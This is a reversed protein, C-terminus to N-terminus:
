MLYDTFLGMNCALVGGIVHTMGKGLSVGYPTPFITKFKNLILIGRAFAVYGVFQIWILVISAIMAMRENAWTGGSEPYSIPSTKSSFVTETAVDLAMNMNLCLVAFFIQWMARQVLGASGQDKFQRLKMIASILLSLGILYMAVQILTFFAPLTLGINQLFNTAASVINEQNFISLAM